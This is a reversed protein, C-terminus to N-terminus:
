PEEVHLSSTHPDGDRLSKDAQTANKRKTTRDITLSAPWLFSGLDGFGPLRALTHLQEIFLVVLWLYYVLLEGIESPLYRYIIKTSNTAAYNKHYSTVFSM